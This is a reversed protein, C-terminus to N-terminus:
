FFPPILFSPPSLLGRLRVFLGASLFAWLLSIGLSLLFARDEVLARFNELGAWSRLGWIDHFVSGYGAAAFPLLGAALVLLFLPILSLWYLRSPGLIPSKM